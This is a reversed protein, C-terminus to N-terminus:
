SARATVRTKAGVSAARLERRQAANVIFSHRAAEDRDQKGERERDRGLGEGDEGQTLHLGAQVADATGDEGACFDFLEVDLDEANKFVDAWLLAHNEGAEGAAREFFGANELPHAAAGDGDVATEDACDGERERKGLLGDGADARDLLHQAGLWAPESRRRSIAVGSQSPPKM